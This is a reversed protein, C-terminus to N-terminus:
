YGRLKRIISDEYKEINKMKAGLKYRRYQVASNTVGFLEAIDRDTHISFMNFMEDKTVDRLDIKKGSEKRIRYKQFERSEFVIGDIEIM